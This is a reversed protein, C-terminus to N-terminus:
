ETMLERISSSLSNKNAVIGIATVIFLIISLTTLLWFFNPRYLMSFQSEYILLGAIWTGIIAGSAAISGTVFWEIINLHFCTKKSLGFSMIISNKKKEKAELAHVSSLIVISALLSILISFGSIIQTVMALTKDFRQTIEDMSVMRLSPHKQWVQALLSFQADELELSAMHYHPAAIFDLAAAPMQAWFTISGAGPKYAHSATIEFEVSQETIYFTLRDGLQLGLDTMVEQEISIQQWHTANTQWWEGDVIRNNEPISDNWHLRISRMFTALSDSPTDAYDSLHMDNIHTLKGYMFPKRQRIEIANKAVWTDIDIMQTESAQTILLNGDHQRQYANMTGGLDKLLMLTFLLLFACLGVGLIQTTKSLLRQKMMYLAFPILGSFKKTSKEGLSLAFWSILLILTISIGIAGLVMATLLANDSYIASVTALVILACTFSLSKSVKSDLNNILQRVSAQKLRFWIPLHFASFIIAAILMPKISHLINWHWELADFRTSLWQIALWHLLTSLLLVLPLLFAINLLWKIISIQLGTSKSAGFSICVASFFQEKQMQLQNLQQIAIAAMFFLIISALGIFNETRQWFLALPHAGQKHHIQAAPLHAKQWEIMDNIQKKNASFLYRSHIIDKPFNLQELDDHHILARMDVNHGEMLRDPEHLIIRSVTFRQDGINLQEGLQISLVTLLRSDMWIEGSLPGSSGAITKGGLSYSTLLEGQLPYNNGVAKLTVRQWNDNYTLTTKLSQTLASRESIRNLHTEQADTLRGKQSIVIDAGLLNNLNTNLYTQISNSTQSLTVIFVMLILQILAPFRRYAHGKEQHYFQWALSLNNSRM